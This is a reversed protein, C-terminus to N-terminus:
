VDKMGLGWYALVKGAEKFNEVYSARNSWSNRLM